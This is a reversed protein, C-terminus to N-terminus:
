SGHARRLAYHLLEEEEAQHMKYSGSAPSAAADRGVYNVSRDAPLARRLPHKVFQWAGMNWPEEQVWFVERASEARSVVHKELNAPDLPTALDM